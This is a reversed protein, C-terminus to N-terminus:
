IKKLLILNMCYNSFSFALYYFEQYLAEGSIKSVNMINQIQPSYIFSAPDYLYTLM